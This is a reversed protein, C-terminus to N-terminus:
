NARLIALDHAAKTRVGAETPHLPLPLEFANILKSPSTSCADQDANFWGAEFPDVYTFGYYNAASRIKANMKTILDNTLARESSNVLLCGTDDESKPHDSVRVPYGEVLVRANTRQRILPYLTALKGTHTQEDWLSELGSYAKVVSPYRATCNATLLCNGIGSVGENGGITLRLVRVNPDNLADLQPPQGLMGTIVDSVKASPCAVNHSIMGLGSAVIESAQVKQRICTTYLTPIKEIPAGVEYSDGVTVVVGASGGAPAVGGLLGCFSAILAVAIIGVKKM